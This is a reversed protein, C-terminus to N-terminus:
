QVLWMFPELALSTSPDTDPDVNGPPRSYSIGAHLRERNSIAGNCANFTNFMVDERGETHWFGMAHGVEHAVVWRSVQGPDGACRCGANRPNLEIRGPDAGLRARGCVRDGLEESWIVNIWGPTEPREEAGREIAAVSLRGGTWIPVVDQITSAVSDLTSADVDRNTGFVTRLYIRPNERWRRIPQLTGPTELGNRVMQRYFDLSFGGALQIADLTVSRTRTALTLRRPVITSGTFSVAAQTTTAPATFAFQGGGDTTTSTVGDVTVAVGALPQGGNTATLTASISSTAPPAPTSPSVATPTTPTSSGGGCALSSAAIAVLFVRRM